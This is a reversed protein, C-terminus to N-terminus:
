HTPAGRDPDFEPPADTQTGGPLGESTPGTTPSNLSNGSSGALPAREDQVEATTTADSHCGALAMMGASLTALCLTKRM